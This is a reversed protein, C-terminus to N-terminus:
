GLLERAWSQFTHGEPAPEDNALRQLLARCEELRRAGDRCSKASSPGKETELVEGLTRLDDIMYDMTPSPDQWHAVIHWGGIFFRARSM